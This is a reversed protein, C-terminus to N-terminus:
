NGSQMIKRILFATITGYIIITTIMTVTATTTM